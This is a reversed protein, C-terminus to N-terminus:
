LELYKKSIKVSSSTRQNNKRKEQMDNVYKHTNM